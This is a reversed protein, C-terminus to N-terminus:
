EVLSRLCTKNNNNNVYRANYDSIIVVMYKCIENESVTLKNFYEKILINLSIFAGSLITDIYEFFVCDHGTWLIQLYIFMFLYIFIMISM